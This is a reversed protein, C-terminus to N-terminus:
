TCTSSASATTPRCPAAITRPRCDAPTAAADTLLRAEDEAFVCGAARLRAVVAAEELEAATM